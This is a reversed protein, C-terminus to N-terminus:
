KTSAVGDETVLQVDDDDLWWDAPTAHLQEFPYFLMRPQLWWLLLGILLVGGLSQLLILAIKIIM